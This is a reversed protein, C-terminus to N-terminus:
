QAETPRFDKPLYVRIGQWEGYTDDELDVYVDPPLSLPFSYSVYYRTPFMNWDGWLEVSARYNGSPLILNTPLKSRGLELIPAISIANDTLEETLKYFQEFLPHFILDTPETM